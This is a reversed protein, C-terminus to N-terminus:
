LWVPDLILDSITVAAVSSAITVVRGLTPTADAVDVRSAEHV